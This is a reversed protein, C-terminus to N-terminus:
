DPMIRKLHTTLWFCSDLTGKGTVTSYLTGLDYYVIRKLRYIAQEM